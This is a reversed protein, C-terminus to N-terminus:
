YFSLESILTIFIDAFKQKTVVMFLLALANQENLGNKLQQSGGLMKNKAELSEGAVM